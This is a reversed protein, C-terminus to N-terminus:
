KQRMRILAMLNNALIFAFNAILAITVWSKDIWVTFAIMLIIGAFYLVDFWISNRMFGLRWLPNIEVQPGYRRVAFMTALYDGIALVALILQAMYHM